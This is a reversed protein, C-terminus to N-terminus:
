EGGWSARLDGQVDSFNSTGVIVYYLPEEGEDLQLLSAIMKDDFSRVPRASFSRESAALCLRHAVRGAEMTLQRYACVDLKDVVDSFCASVVYVASM